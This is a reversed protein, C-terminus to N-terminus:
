AAAPIIATTLSSGGKWGATLPTVRIFVKSGAPPNGYRIRYLNSIDSAGQVPPPTLGLLRFDSCVERGASQPASAELLGDTGVPFADAQSLKLTVVGGANTALLAGVPSVEFNPKVPPDNVVNAGILQNLCNVKTFLNNGTLVGKTGGRATSNISKAAATWAARQDETLGRWNQAAITLAARINLQAQTKPNTPIVLARSIQGFRGGQSVTLGRKGSQTIDLIKM